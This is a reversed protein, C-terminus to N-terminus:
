TQFPFCSFLVHNNQLNKDHIPYESRSIFKFNLNAKDLSHCTERLIYRGYISGVSKKPHQALCCKFIQGTIFDKAGKEITM